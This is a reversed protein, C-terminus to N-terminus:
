EPSLTTVGVAAARALNPDLSMRVYEGRRWLVGLDDYYRSLPHGSQGTSLIFLSSDPDAFDYVGRYGAGHVNTFPRPDEGSTKGRMLTHDGGSTSQRINVLWKLIPERGLVQHKHEATHADGWRLSELASGYEQAIWLLAEDLAIRSVDVCSERATSQRIDCWVSAGAIDRFVREIFIPDAHTFEGAFPGLEDRILKDQLHRLWASYILPEPLHESMEGNWSALLDLARKRQAEPTGPKAAEGTFWLDRAILPLLNRATVSVSDLQADIFSERTHVERDEMLKRWRLIRQTDGWDYSLHNPFPKNVTKNNTNGLLGSEPDVFRPNATFPKYGQWRNEEQWGYSPIRGRHTNDSQRNPLAGAVQMAISDPDVLTVNLSPAVFGELADSAEAVSQSTMLRFASTLSTDEGELASWALAAVHRPPTVDELDFHSGPLVPGNETSRLTITLPPANKIRIISRETDFAAWGNPTRYEQPNAPNLEELFIDQDDVYSS